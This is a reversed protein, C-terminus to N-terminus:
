EKTVPWAEVQYTGHWLWRDEDAELEEVFAEALEETAFVDVIEYSDYQGRTVIYVTM